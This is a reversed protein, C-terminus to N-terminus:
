WTAICIDYDAHAGSGPVEDEDLSHEGICGQASAFESDHSYGFAISDLQGDNEHDFWSGDKAMGRFALFAPDSSDDNPVAVEKGKYQAGVFFGAVAFSNKTETIEHLHELMHDDKTIKVFEHEAASNCALLLM